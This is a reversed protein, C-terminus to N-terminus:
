RVALAADSRIQKPNRDAGNLDVDVLTSSLSREGARWGAGRCSACKGRANFFQASPLM